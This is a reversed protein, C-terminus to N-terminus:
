WVTRDKRFLRYVGMAAGRDHSSDGWTETIGILDCVRLQVCVELNEQEHGMCGRTSSTVREWGEGDSFDGNGLRILM